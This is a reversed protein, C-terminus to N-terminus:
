HYANRPNRYPNPQTSPHDSEADWENLLSYALAAAEPVAAAVAPTPQEGWGTSAPQIGILARNAPLHNCLRAMDLLDALGIEHVSKRGARLYRDMAPGEFCMVEGPEAQLEAADVVILNACYQVDGLLTFSLTGGDIVRIHDHRALRDAIVRIVHVGVGEDSLLINGIGLILTDVCPKENV